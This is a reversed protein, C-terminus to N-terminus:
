LLIDASLGLKFLVSEFESAAFPVFNSIKPCALKLNQVSALDYSQTNRTAFRSPLIPITPWSKMSEWPFVNFYFSRVHVVLAPTM